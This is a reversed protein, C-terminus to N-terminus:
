PATGSRQRIVGAHGPGVVTNPDPEPLNDLPSDYKSTFRIVTEVGRVALKEGGPEWNGSLRTPSRLWIGPLATSM